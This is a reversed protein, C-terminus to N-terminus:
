TLFSHTTTSLSLLFFFFFRQKIETNKKEKLDFCEFTPNSFNDACFIQHHSVLRKNNHVKQELHYLLLHLLVVKAVASQTSDASAAFQM